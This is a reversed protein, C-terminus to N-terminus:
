LLGTVVFITTGILLGIMIRTFLKDGDLRDLDNMKIRRNLIQHQYVLKPILQLKIM